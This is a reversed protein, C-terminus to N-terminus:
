DKGNFRPISPTNPKPDQAPLFFREAELANPMPRRPRSQSGADTGWGSEIPPPTPRPRAQSAEQQTPSRESGSRGTRLASRLPVSTGRRSRSGSALAAQAAAQGAAETATRIAAQVAAETARSAARRASASNARGSLRIGRRAAPRLLGEPDELPPIPREGREASRVRTNPRNGQAGRQREQRERREARLRAQRDLQAAREREERETRVERQFRLVERLAFDDEDDGGRRTPSPAQSQPEDAM